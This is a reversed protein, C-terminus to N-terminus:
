QAALEPDDLIGLHAGLIASLATNKGAAAELNQKVIALAASLCQAEHRAGQGQEEVRIEPQVLHVAVGLAIGPAARVGALMGDRVPTPSVQVVVAVATIDEGMGSEILEALAMVAKEADVGTAVVTVRAGRTLGLGM